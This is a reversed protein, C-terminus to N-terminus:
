NKKKQTAQEYQKNVNEFDIISFFNNIYDQRNNQYKLYYAHEWLDLALIPTLGYLYPTEQNSTNIIELENEPNVVLFTYGSGVVFNATKIFEKKFNEYNGYTQEIKEKLKGVPKQNILPTMTNFYLEHNIVGGVNYLIDDRQNLPFEQIHNILEEKPYSFDFELSILIQNLNDLYKGYHKNYHIDVTKKDIIPELEGYGYKLKIKQYM